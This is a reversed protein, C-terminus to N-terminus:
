YNEPLLYDLEKVNPVGGYIAVFRESERAKYIEQPSGYMEAMRIYYYVRSCDDIILERGLEKAQMAKTHLYATLYEQVDWTAHSNDEPEIVSQTFTEYNEGDMSVLLEILMAYNPNKTDSSVTSQTNVLVKASPYETVTLNLATNKERPIIQ